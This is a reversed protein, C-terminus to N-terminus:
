KYLNLEEFTLKIARKIADSLNEFFYNNLIEKREEKSSHESAIDLPHTYRGLPYSNPPLLHKIEKLGYEWDYEEPDIKECVLEVLLPKEDFQDVMYYTQGEIFPFNLQPDEFKM